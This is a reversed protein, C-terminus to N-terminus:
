PSGLESRDTTTKLNYSRAKKKTGFIEFHKKGRVLYFLENLTYATNRREKQAAQGLM